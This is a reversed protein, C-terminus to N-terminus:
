RASPRTTSTRDFPRRMLRSGFGVLSRLTVSRAPPFANRARHYLRPHILSLPPEALPEPLNPYLAAHSVRVYLLSNQAYFYGVRDNRWVRARVVDYAAYEHRAFLGAWYEPWQENIHSTGGQGPVAASFLVAPALEVLTEVLTSASDAPLHEGVELCLALDFTRDLVARTRLDQAVFREDPIELLARDVHPADVGVSDAVGLEEAVVLWSGTGCGVDVVSSANVLELVIPLVVQASARARDKRSEFWQRRYRTV